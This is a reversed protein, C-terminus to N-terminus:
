GISIGKSTRYQMVMLRLFTRIIYKSHDILLSFRDISYNVAKFMYIRLSRLWLVLYLANANYCITEQHMSAILASNLSESQTAAFIECLADRM